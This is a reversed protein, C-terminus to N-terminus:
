EDESESESKPSIVSSIWTGNVNRAIGNCGDLQGSEFIMTGDALERDHSAWGLTCTQTLEIRDSDTDLETQM